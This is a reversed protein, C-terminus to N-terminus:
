REGLHSSSGRPQHQHQPLYHVSKRSWYDAVEAVLAALSSTIALPLYPMGDTLVKGQMPPGNPASKRSDTWNTEVDQSM